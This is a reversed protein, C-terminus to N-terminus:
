ELETRVITAGLNPNTSRYVSYAVGDITVAAAAEFGGEFGGVWFTVSGLSSPFAFALYEGSGATISPWAHAVGGSALTEGFAEVDAQTWASAVTTTGYFIRPTVVPVPASPSTYSRNYAPDKKQNIWNPGNKTLMLSTAKGGGPPFIIPTLIYLDRSPNRWETEVKGALGTSIMWSLAQRAATAKAEFSTVTVSVDKAVKEFNSGIAEGRGKLFRNGAWGEETFLSIMAANELGTDM